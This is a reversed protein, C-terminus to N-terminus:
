NGKNSKFFTLTINTDPSEFRTVVRKLHTRTNMATGVSGDPVMDGSSGLRWVATETNGNRVVTSDVYRVSYTADVSYTVGGTATVSITESGGNLQEIGQSVNGDGPAPIVSPNAATNCEMSTINEDSGWRYRGNRTCNLDGTDPNMILPGSGGTQYNQDWRAQFKDFVWGSLRPIIDDDIVAKKTANDAINMMSPITMISIAIIVIAFILEIMAMASRMPLRM